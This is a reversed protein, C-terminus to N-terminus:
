LEEGLLELVGYAEEMAAKSQAHLHAYELNELLKKNQYYVDRWAPANAKSVVANECRNPNCRLGGICPISEDFEMPGGGYCFGQGVSIVAIHQEAMAEFIDDKTHGSAMYGKFVRQLREKHAAANVGAYSGDPDFRQKISEVEADHRFSKGSVGKGGNKTLMDAIEGYGLTTKSFGRESHGVGVIEGFHKLQHSIFPLGVDARYLQYALTHRMMYANFDLDSFQEPTLVKKFFKDLTEKSGAGGLPQGQKGFPVTDVNSFIFDNNKYKALLQAVRVADRVIPIALWFDDFLEVLNDEQKSVNSRLVWYTGDFILCSSALLEAYESPRMGTYQGIVYMCAYNVYNLYYRFGDDIKSGTDESYMKVADLADTFFYYSLDFFTDGVVKSVESKPFGKYALRKYVYVNFKLPCLGYIHSLLQKESNRRSLTLTDVVREGMADLFDVIALSSARSSVEFVDNPLVQRKKKEEGEPRKAKGLLKWKLTSLNVVPLCSGFVNEVLYGSRLGKFFVELANDFVYEFDKAAEEYLHSPLMHVSLFEREVHERGLEQVAASFTKDLFRLGAEFRAIVTNPKPLAKSIRMSSGQEPVGSIGKLILMFATRLELMAFEPINPYKTFDMRLKAGRIHRSANPYDANFDWVPSVFASLKSVQLSQIYNLFKLAEGSAIDDDGSKLQLLIASVTERYKAFSLLTSFEFQEM